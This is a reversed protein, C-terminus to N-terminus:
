VKQAGMELQLQGPRLMGRGMGIEDDPIEETAVKGYRLGAMSMSMSQSGVGAATATATAPATAMRRKLETYAIVGGLAVIIGFVARANSQYQFVLFGLV